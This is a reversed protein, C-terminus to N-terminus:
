RGDILGPSARSAKTERLSSVLTAQAALPARDRADRFLADALLPSVVPPRPRVAPSIPTPQIIPRAPPRPRFLSAIDDLITM